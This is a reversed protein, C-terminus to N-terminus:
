ASGYRTTAHGVVWVAGAAVPAGGGSVPPCILVGVVGLISRRRTGCGPLSRQMRTLSGRQVSILRRAAASPLVMASHNILPLTYGVM